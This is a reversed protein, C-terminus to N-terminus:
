VLDSIPMWHTIEFYRTNIDKNDNWDYWVGDMDPDIAAFIIPHYEKDIAMQEDTAQRVALVQVDPEPLSEAADRWLPMRSAQYDFAAQAEVMEEYDLSPRTSWYEKFNM